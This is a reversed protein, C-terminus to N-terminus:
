IAQRRAQRRRILGFGVLGAGLLAVSGPEPVAAVLPAAVSDQTVASTSVLSGVDTTSSAPDGSGSSSTIAPNPDQLNLTSTTVDSGPQPGTTDSGGGSPSSNNSNNGNSNSSNNGVETSVTFIESLRTGIKATVSGPNVVLPPEGTINATDGSMALVINPATFTFSGIQGSGSVQESFTIPMAPSSPASAIMAAVALM